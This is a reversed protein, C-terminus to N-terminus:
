KNKKKTTHKSMLAVFDLEISIEAKSTRLKNDQVATANQSEIRVIGSM